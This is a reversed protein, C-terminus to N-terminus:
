NFKVTAGKMTPMFTFLVDGKSYGNGTSDAYVVTGAPAKITLSQHPQVTYVQGEVKIDQSIQGKNYVQVSIRAGQSRAAGPDPPTRKGMPWANAAAPAMVGAILLVALSSAFTRTIRLM